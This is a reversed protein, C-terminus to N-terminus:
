CIGDDMLNWWCSECLTHPRATPIYLATLFIRLNHKIPTYAMLNSNHALLAWLYVDHLIHRCYVSSPKTIFEPIDADQHCLHSLRSQSTDPEFGALGMTVVSSTNDTNKKKGPIWHNWDLMHSLLQYDLIFALYYLTSPRYNARNLNLGAQFLFQM